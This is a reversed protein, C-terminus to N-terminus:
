LVINVTNTDADWTVTKGADRLAKAPIYTTEKGDVMLLVAGSVAQGNINVAQDPLEVPIKMDTEGGGAAAYEIYPCELWHQWERDWLNTQVVGDGYYGRTSEIVQGNGIYVGIHGDMQVCLGPIEPMALIHGKNKARYYMNNADVDSAVDYGVKSGGISGGWYYGKILGVCDLLFGRGVLLTLAAKRATNYHSPYQRAKQSIIALSIPQGWCGWGYRTTQALWAKAWEVLGTNTYM